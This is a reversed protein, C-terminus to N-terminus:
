FGKEEAKGHSFHKNTQWLLNKPLIWLEACWLFYHKEATLLIFWAMLLSILDGRLLSKIDLIM